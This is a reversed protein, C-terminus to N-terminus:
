ARNRGWGKGRIWRVFPRGTSRYHGRPVHIYLIGGFVRDWKGDRLVLQELETALEASDMMEHSLGFFLTRWPGREAVRIMRLTSPDVEECELVDHLGFSDTLLPHELARYRGGGLPELDVDTSGDANPLEVRFLGM